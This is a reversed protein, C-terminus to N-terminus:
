KLEGWSSGQYVEVKVPVRLKVVGEMAEKLIKGVKDALKEPVELVLEDHVQLLLRVSDNGRGSLPGRQPLRSDLRQGSSGPDRDPIVIHTDSHCFQKKIEEHVEIMAMKMLDAATGQIPHNIAM